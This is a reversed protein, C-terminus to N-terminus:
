YLFFTESTWITKFTEFCTKFYFIREIGALSPVLVTFLDAFNVLHESLLKQSQFFNKLICNRSLEFM